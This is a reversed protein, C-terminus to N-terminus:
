EFRYNLNMMHGFFWIYVLLTDKFFTNTYVNLHMDPCLDLHKMLTLHLSQFYETKVDMLIDM